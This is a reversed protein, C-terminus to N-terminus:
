YENPLILTFRGGEDALYFLWTGDPMDTYDITRKWLPPADDADTLTLKAKGDHVKAEVIGMIVESSRKECANRLPKLCETGIIDLLWHCGTEALDRVGDSYQLQPYLKNFLFGNCGNRSTNYTEIFKETNM